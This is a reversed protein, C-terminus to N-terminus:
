AHVHHFFKLGSPHQPTHPQPREAATMEVHLIWVLQQAAVYDPNEHQYIGISMGEGQGARGCDDRACFHRDVKVPSKIRFDVKAQEKRVEELATEHAQVRATIAMTPMAAQQDAQAVSQLNAVRAMTRSASLYTVPPRYTIDLFEGDSSVSCELQALATPGPLLLDVSVRGLCINNGAIFNTHCVGEKWQYCHHLFM